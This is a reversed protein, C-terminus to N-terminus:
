IKKERKREGQRFRKVYAADIMDEVELELVCNVLSALTGDSIRFDTPILGGESVLNEEIHALLARFFDSLGPRASSTASATAVDHAYVEANEADVGIAEVVANLDPWYKNDYQYRM